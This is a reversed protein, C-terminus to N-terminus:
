ASRSPRRRAALSDTTPVQPSAFPTGNSYMMVGSSKSITLRITRRSKPLRRGFTHRDKPRPSVPNFFPSAPVLSSQSSGGVALPIKARILGWGEPPVVARSGSDSLWCYNSARRPHRALVGCGCPSDGSPAAPRPLSTSYISPRFQPLQLSRRRGHGGNALGFLPVM